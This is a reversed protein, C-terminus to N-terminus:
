QKLDEGLDCTYHWEIADGDRVQYESCSVGPVKGNVCYTWGSLEGCSFEYINDIGEIYASKGTFSAEMLINDKKLERQLIDYVSDNKEFTVTRKKVIMGSKPVYNEVAADLQEMNDQIAACEVLFTCKGGSTTETKKDNSCATLLLMMIVFLAIRKKRM